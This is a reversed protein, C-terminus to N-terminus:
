EIDDLLTMKLEDVIVECAQGIAELIAYSIEEARASSKFKKTILTEKLAMKDILSFVKENIDEHSLINLATNNISIFIGKNEVVVQNLVEKFDQVTHFDSINNVILMDGDRFNYTVDSVITTPHSLFINENFNKDVLSSTSLNFIKM